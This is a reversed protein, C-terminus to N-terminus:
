TPRRSRTVTTSNSEPDSSSCGRRRARPKWETALSPLLKGDPRPQDSQRLHQVLYPHREFVHELHPDLAAIDGGQAVVLERKQTGQARAAQPPGPLAAAAGAATIKLVDRRTMEAM